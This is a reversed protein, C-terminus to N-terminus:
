GTAYRTMPFLAAANNVNTTGNRILVQPPVSMAMIMVSGNFFDPRSPLIFSLKSSYFFSFCDPFSPQKEKETM